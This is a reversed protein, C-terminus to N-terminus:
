ASAARPDIPLLPALGLVQELLAGAALLPAEGRPPGVIQLGVPLGAATFGGPLALAPCSTLTIAYCITYWEYFNAFKHEGLRDIYRIDVDFPALIAAPTVLLDYTEFFAAVRYYLAARAREAKGIEGATLKEGQEVNWIVEPKVKDRHAAVVGSLQAAILQARLVHFIARADGLDPCAEEVTAGLEGFRAAAARCVAAIEPDVPTIGGLDASFAVRRPAQPAQTASLFGREPRTLSIPDGPHQGTMADLMLALDAVNRAMPGEVWLNDYPFPLPGRAVRGPSPRLGVVSCFAAPTRLSCGFDSGTALWAEGTALAVAAGGSSGGCTTATNWPNRTKGFVENFTNAGHAFEPTNSKGIVVGGNRELTEVMIDSRQPVHDAYIPSGYTTRVGAVDNMDKILIPLGALPGAAAKGDMIRRAHDRARDLCLTPVANVAPDVAAIRSAAAEILELPSVRRRRLMDVAENATLRHLDSM